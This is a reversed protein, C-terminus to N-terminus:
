IEEWKVTWGVAAWVEDMGVFTPTLDGSSTTMTSATRVGMVRPLFPPKLSVTGYTAGEWERERKRM